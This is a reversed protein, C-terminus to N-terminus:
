RGEGRGDLENEIFRILGAIAGKDHDCVEIIGPISRLSDMGNAPMACRDAARLMALDNEYDGIAWLEANEKGILKKLRGLMAGKTGKIAQVELITPCALMSVCGGRMMSDILPRLATLEEATGEWAIKHWNGHLIEEYPIACTRETQENLWAPLNKANKEMLYNGQCTIRMFVDPSHRRAADVIGSIEPEPLFEETVICDKELDYVYAGNCAILPINCIKELEPISPPVLFHERGTALTFSGGESKFYEIAEINEPVVRGRGLFTGDIDSVIIIGSFKGM